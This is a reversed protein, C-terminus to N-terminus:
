IEAKLKATTVYTYSGSGSGSGGGGSSSSSSVEWLLSVRVCLQVSLIVFYCYLYMLYHEDFWILVDYSM